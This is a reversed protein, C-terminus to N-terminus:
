ERTAIGMCIDVVYKTMVRTYQQGTSDVEHDVTGGSEVLGLDVGLDDERGKNGADHPAHGHTLPLVLYGSLLGLM